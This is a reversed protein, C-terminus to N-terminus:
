AHAAHEPALDHAIAAPRALKERLDEAILEVLPGRSRTFLFSYKPGRKERPVIVLNESLFQPERAITSGELDITECFPKWNRRGVFVIKHPEENTAVLAGFLNAPIRRGRASLCPVALATMMLLLATSPIRALLPACPRNM